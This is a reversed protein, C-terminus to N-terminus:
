FDIFNHRCYSWTSRQKTPSPISRLTGKNNLLSHPSLRLCLAGSCMGKTFLHLEAGKGKGAFLLVDWLHKGDELLYGKQDKTTGEARKKGCWSIGVGVVVQGWAWGLGGPQNVNSPKQRSGLRQLRGLLVGTPATKKSTTGVWHGALSDWELPQSGTTQQHVGHQFGSSHKERISYIHWSRTESKLYQSRAWSM